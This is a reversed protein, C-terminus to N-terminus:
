ARRREEQELYRELMRNQQRSELWWLWGALTMIGTQIALNILSGPMERGALVRFFSVFLGIFGSAAVAVYLFLRVKRWPRRAEVRLQARLRAQDSLM